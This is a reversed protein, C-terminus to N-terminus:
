VFRETDSPDAENRRKTRTTRGSVAWSAEDPRLGPPQCLIRKSDASENHLITRRPRSHSTAGGCQIPRLNAPYTANQSILPIVRGQHRVTTSDVHRKTADFHAGAAGTPLGLGTAIPTRGM